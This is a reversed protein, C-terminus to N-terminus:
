RRRIGCERGMGGGLTRFLISPRSAYSSDKGGWPIDGREGDKQGGEGGEQGKEGEELDEVNGVVEEGDGRGGSLGDVAVENVAKRLEKVSPNNRLIDANIPPRVLRIRRRFSPLINVVVEVGDTKVKFPEDERGM